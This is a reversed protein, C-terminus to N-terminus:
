AHVVNEFSDCVVIEVYMCCPYLWSAWSIMLFKLCSFWCLFVWFHCFLFWFLACTCLLILIPLIVIICSLEGWLWISLCTYWVSILSIICLSILRAWAILVLISWSQHFDMGYYWSWLISWNCCEPSRM